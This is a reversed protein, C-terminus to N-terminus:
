DFWEDHPDFKPLAIILVKMRGVARHRTGPRILVCMGPRVPIREGDLEMAADARSLGRHVAAATAASLSAFLRLEPNASADPAEGAELLPILVKLSTGYRGSASLAVGLLWGDAELRDLTEVIGEYLAEEVEGQERMRRFCRKYGEALDHHHADDADPLLARMAEPLSLGVIRRVAARDPAARGAEAFCATMAAHINAQSDVLTGDCDFIALRNTM